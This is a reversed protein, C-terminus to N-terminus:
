CKRSTKLQCGRRRRRCFSKGVECLSNGGLKRESPSICLALLKSKTLSTYNTSLQISHVLLFSQTARILKQLVLRIFHREVRSKQRTREKGPKAKSSNMNKQRAGHLVPSPHCDLSFSFFHRNCCSSSLDVRIVM